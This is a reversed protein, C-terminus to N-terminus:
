CPYSAPVRVRATSHCPSHTAYHHPLPHLSTAKCPLRPAFGHFSLSSLSNLNKFFATSLGGGGSSDIDKCSGGKGRKGGVLRGRSGRVRQPSFKRNKQIDSAAVRSEPLSLPLPYCASRNGPSALRHRGGAEWNFPLLLRSEPRSCSLVAYYSLCKSRFINFLFMTFSFFSFRDLNYTNRLDITQSEIFTDGNRSEESRGRLPLLM